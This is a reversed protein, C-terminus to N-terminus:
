LSVSEGDDCVVTGAFIELASREYDHPQKLAPSYHTLWLRKVQAAKAIQAAQAFVTHGRAMMKDVKELDGYMGECVLLDAGRAFQAMEDFCVTDTMYCLVIPDRVGDTVQSPTYTQEGDTVTEGRHLRQWFEQPVQHKKAKEPSFVPLRHYALRYGLCPMTHRMPLTDITFNRWVHAHEVAASADLEVVDIPFPLMPCICCIGNLVHLVGKPGCITLPTTKGCNSLTLLLGPLGLVHDGHTHTILILELRSLKKEQKELAVQTGEGCDILAAHGGCEVWLCTLSRGPLPMMGGTGALCVDVM